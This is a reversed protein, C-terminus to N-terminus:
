SDVGPLSTVWRDIASMEIEDGENDFPCDDYDFTGHEALTDLAWLVQSQHRYGDFLWGQQNNSLGLLQQAQTVIAARRNGEVLCENVSIVEGLEYEEKPDESSTFVMPYGALTTTWGAVCGTTPCSVMFLPNSFKQLQPSLEVKKVVKPDFKFQGWDAQYWHMQGNDYNEPNENPHQDRRIEEAIAKAMEKPNNRLFEQREKVKKIFANRKRTNAAKQAPTLKANEFM